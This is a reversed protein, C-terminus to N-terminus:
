SCRLPRTSTPLRISSHTSRTTALSASRSVSLVRCTTARMANCVVTVMSVNTASKWVLSVSERITRTTAMWVTGPVSETVLLFLWILADTVPQHARMRAHAVSPIVSNASDLLLTPSHARM